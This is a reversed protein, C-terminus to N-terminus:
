RSLRDDRAGLLNEEVARPRRGVEDPQGELRLVPENSPMTLSSRSWRRRSRHRHARALPASQRQRSHGCKATTLPSISRPRDDHYTAPIPHEQRPARGTGAEPDCMPSSSTRGAQCGLANGRGNPTQAAPARGAIPAHHHHQDALAAQRTRPRSPIPSAVLSREGRPRRPPWAEEDEVASSGSTVVRTSRDPSASAPGGAHPYVACAPPPVTRMAASPRATPSHRGPDAMRARSVIDAGAPRAGPTHGVRRPRAPRRDVRRSIAATSARASWTAASAVDGNARQSPAGSDMTLGDHGPVAGGVVPDFVVSTQAPGAPVTCCLWVREAPSQGASRERSPGGLCHGLFRDDALLDAHGLDPDVVADHGHGDDPDGRAADHLHLRGLGVAVAGHLDGEAVCFGWRRLPPSRPWKSLAPTSGPM